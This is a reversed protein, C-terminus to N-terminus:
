TASLFLVRRNSCDNYLGTGASPPTRRSGAGNSGCVRNNDYPTDDENNRDDAENADGSSMNNLLGLGAGTSVYPSSERTPAPPCNTGGM